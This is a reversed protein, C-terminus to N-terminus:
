GSPPTWRCDGSVSFAGTGANRKVADEVAALLRADKADSRLSSYVSSVAETLATVQDGGAVGYRAGATCAEAVAAPLDPDAMAVDQARVVAGELFGHQRSSLSDYTARNIVLISMRPWLVVDATLFPGEATVGAEVLDRPDATAAEVRGEVVDAAGGTGDTSPTAGLAQVTAAEVPNLASVQVTKGAWDGVSLLAAGAAIPYASEGPVLGLGVLDSDRLAKMILEGPVGLAVARQQDHTRVLFPAELADIGEIGLETLSRVTVWAVDAEGTAVAEVIGTEGGKWNETVDLAISGDALEEFRDLFAQQDPTTTGPLAITLGEVGVVAQEEGVCGSLLVALTGLAVIGTLRSSSM